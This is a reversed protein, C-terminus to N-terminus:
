DSLCGMHNSQEKHEDDDDDNNNKHLTRQIFIDLVALQM